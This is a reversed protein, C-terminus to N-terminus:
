HSVAGSFRLGQCADRAGAGIRGGSCQYEQSHGSGRWRRRCSRGHFSLNCDHCGSHADTYGMGKFLQIPCDGDDAAAEHPIFLTRPLSISVSKLFINRSRAFETRESEFSASTRTRRSSTSICNLACFRLLSAPDTSSYVGSVHFDDLARDEIIIQRRNYRNFDDVVDSLRSADFILRRQVWAIAVAVDAPAPAAVAHDTVTLQEGASVLIAGGEKDNGEALRPSSRSGPTSASKAAGSALFPAGGGHFEGGAIPHTSNLVAVRGEIVTVTTGNKRRYVDFQTGVARVATDGSRVIFPRAKDKAVEFLAQGDILDVNRERESFRIRVESRSNLDITSGDVLTISRREGIQTIYTSSRNLAFFVLLSATGVIAMSAALAAAKVWPRRHGPIVPHVGTHTGQVCKATPSGPRHPSAHDEMPVVNSDPLAHAILAEVDIKRQPSPAPLDVYTKAIEMYARIHEPSERLWRDFRERSGSDVDGVRFDVFWTSAEELIQRNLKPRAQKTKM